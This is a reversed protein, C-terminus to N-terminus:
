QKDEKEIDSSEPVSVSFIPKYHVIDPNEGNAIAEKEMQEQLLDLDLFKDTFEESGEIGNEIALRRLHIYFESEVATRYPNGFFVGVIGYSISSLIVWGVLSVDIKFMEWKHHNMMNRSLTIAKKAKIGPNEAVIYPVMSYSYFKIPIAVITLCWLMYYIDRLFMTKAPGKIRERFLFGLRGIKTKKYTRNELFFRREGVIIINVIFISFLLSFVFSGAEVIIDWTTKKALISTVTGMFKFQYTNNKTIGDFYSAAAASARNIEKNVIMEAKEKASRTVSFTDLLNALNSNDATGFFTVEKSNLAEEGFEEYSNYWKRVADANDVNWKKSADEPSLNTKKMDEVIELKQEPTFQLDAVHSNDYSSIQQTSTSYEGGIFLMIFCVAVCTIYNRKVSVKAHRKIEKRLKRQEARKTKKKDKESM